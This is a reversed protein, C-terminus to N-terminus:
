QVPYHHQTVYTGIPEDNVPVKLLWSFTNAISAGVRLGTYSGPGTAVRIDTIDGMKLSNKALLSEIGSLVATGSRLPTEVTLKEIRGEVDLTIVSKMRDSTDISLIVSKM